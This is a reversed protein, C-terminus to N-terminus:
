CYLLVPREHWAPGYRAVCVSTVPSETALSTTDTAFATETAVTTDTAVATETAVTTETAVATDMVMGMTATPGQALM